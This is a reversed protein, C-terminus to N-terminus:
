SPLPLLNPSFVSAVLPFNLPINDLINLTLLGLPLLVENTTPLL